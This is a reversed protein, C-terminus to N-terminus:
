LDEFKRRRLELKLASRERLAEAEEPSVSEYDFGGITKRHSLDGAHPVPLHDADAFTGSM